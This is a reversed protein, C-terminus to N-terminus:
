FHVLKYYIIKINKLILKFFSVHYIYIYIITCMDIHQHGIMSIYILIRGNNWKMYIYIYIYRMPIHVMMYIYIITDCSSYLNGYVCIGNLALNFISDNVHGLSNTPHLSMM